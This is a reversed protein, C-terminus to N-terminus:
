EVTPTHNQTHEIFVGRREAGGMGRREDDDWRAHKFMCSSFNSEQVERLVVGRRITETIVVGEIWVHNSHNIFVSVPLTINNGHHIFGCRSLMVRKLSVSDVHDFLLGARDGGGVCM